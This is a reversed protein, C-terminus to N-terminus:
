RGLSGAGPLGARGLSCCGAPKSKSDSLYPFSHSLFKKRRLTKQLDRVKGEMVCVKSCLTFVVGLGALDWGQIKGSSCWARPSVGKSSHPRELDPSWPAWLTGPGQCKNNRPLRSAEQLKCNIHHVTEWKDAVKVSHRSAGSCLECVLAKLGSKSAWLM